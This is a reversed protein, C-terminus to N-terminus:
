RYYGDNVPGELFSFKEIEARGQVHHTSNERGVGFAVSSEQGRWHEENHEQALSCGQQVAGTFM